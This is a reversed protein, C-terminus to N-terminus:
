NGQNPAFSNLFIDDDSYDFAQKIRLAIDLSPNKDGSEIQSYHSRSIHIREAAMEQSFGKEKRVAALKARM